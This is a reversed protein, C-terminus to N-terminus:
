EVGGGFHRAMMGIEDHTALGAADGDAAKAVFAVAFARYAVGVHSGCGEDTDAVLAGEAVVM